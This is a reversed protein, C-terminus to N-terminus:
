TLNPGGGGGGENQLEGQKEAVSNREGVVHGLSGQMVSCM